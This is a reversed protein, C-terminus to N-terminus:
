KPQVKILRSVKSKTYVKISFIKSKLNQFAVNKFFFGYCAIFLLEFDYLMMFIFIGLHILVGSILAFYRTKKIYVLFPFYIEWLMVFYTITTVLWGNLALTENFRTGKFRDLLLIYYTSVGSFWVKANAKFLGSVIYILCLHCIIYLVGINTLINEYTSAKSKRKNICLHRYSDTLCMYLALFKLLNDGGNLLYGNGHQLIEISIYFLIMSINRGIGFLVLLSILIIVTFLLSINHNILQFIISTGYGANLNLIGQSFLIDNNPYLFIIKQILHLALYVRFISLYITHQSERSLYSIISNLKKNIFSIM